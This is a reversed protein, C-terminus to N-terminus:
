LRAPAAAPQYAQLRYTAIFNTLGQTPQGNLADLVLANRFRGLDLYTQYTKPVPVVSSLAKQGANVQAMERNLQDLDSGGLNTKAVGLYRRFYDQQLQVADRWIENTSFGSIEQLLNRQSPTVLEIRGVMVRNVEAPQSIELPLYFDTWARPVLFFVRLGTSKFYSSEWTNLLAQAEDDLLGNAVLASKLAAKLKDLNGPAFDAPAFDAATRLLQQDAAHELSLAPLPRFALKGGPRIDALWLSDIGLPGDFQGGALQSRFQLEGSHADRSIRLPAAIHAVGRYFLFKESEGDATRVLASQVARPATWVQASTNTVPWDGGIELDNWELKSETGALLRGFQFRGHDLGPVALAAAPYFESLWGGRLTVRVSATQVGAMTKPPHFYIVPTELRMTVDPHCSPAGQFFIGPVESPRLLVFDDLRHVFPPVPEDDTNIGGIAAGSEDQLATFTGWEHVAWKSDAAEGAATLWASAGLLCLVKKMAANYLAQGASNDFLQLFHTREQPARGPLAELPSEVHKNFWVISAV